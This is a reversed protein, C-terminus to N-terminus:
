SMYLQRNIYFSNGDFMVCYVMKDKASGSLTVDSYGEAYYIKYQMDVSTFTPTVSGKSLVITSVCGSGWYIDTGEFHPNLKINVSTINGTLRYTFNPSLNISPTTSGSEYEGQPFIYGQIDEGYSEVRIYKHRSDFILSTSYGDGGAELSLTSLIQNDFDPDNNWPKFQIQSYESGGEKNLCRLIGTTNYGSVSADIDLLSVEATNTIPGGIIIHGSSDEVTWDSVRLVANDVGGGAIMKNGIYIAM